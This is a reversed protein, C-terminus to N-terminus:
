FFIRWTAAASAPGLKLAPVLTEARPRKPRLLILAAATGLGVVGVGFAVDAVAEKTELATVDAATYKTPSESHLTEWQTLSEIGFVATVIVGAVGAAGAIWASVPIPGPKANGMEFSAAVRLLKAGEPVTLRYSQARGSPLLFEFTHVGPDLPMASGDLAVPTRAGDVRLSFALPAGTDTDRASAVVTAISDDLKTLQQTCDRVVAVPCLARACAVFHSRAEVLKRDLALRQGLESQEICEAKSDSAQGQGPAAPEQALAASSALTLASLAFFRLRPAWAALV